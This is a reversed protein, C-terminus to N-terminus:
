TAEDHRAIIHAPVGMMTCNPPVNTCVVSNAGIISNNGVTIKGFVKAGAAIRVNDGIIPCDGDGKVQGITVEQNIWCNVGITKGGIATAYGHQIFLGPGIHPAVIYLTSVRQHTCKVIALLLRSTLHYEREIRYYLLNRFEPYKWLLWVLGMWRSNKLQQMLRWEKLWRDLDVEIIPKAPSIHFMIIAPFARLINLLYFTKQALPYREVM